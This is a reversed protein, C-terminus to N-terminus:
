DTELPLGSPDLGSAARFLPVLEGVKAQMRNDEGRLFLGLEHGNGGPVGTPYKRTRSHADGAQLSPDIQSNWFGNVWAPAYRSLSRILTLRQFLGDATVIRNVWNELEVIHQRAWLFPAEIKAELQQLTTDLKQLVHVHFVELVRNLQRIFEITDIIPRVFRKYIQDIHDKITKLWRLVPGFVEKLWTQLKLLERETWLAFRRLAGGALRALTALARALGKGARWIATVLQKSIAVLQDRLYKVLRLLDKVTIAFFGRLFGAIGGLIGGVAGLFGDGGFEAM